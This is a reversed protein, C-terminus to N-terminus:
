DNTLLKYDSYNDFFLVEILTAPMKAAKIVYFNAEKDHDGDSTDFRM